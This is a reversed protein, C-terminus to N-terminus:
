DELSDKLLLSLKTSDDLSGFLGEVVFMTMSLILENFVVWKREDLYKGEM